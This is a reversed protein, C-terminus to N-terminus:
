AKDPEVGSATPPPVAMKATNKVPQFFLAVRTRRLRFTKFDIGFHKSL